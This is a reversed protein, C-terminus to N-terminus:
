HKMTIHLVNTAPEYKLIMPAKLMNCSKCTFTHQFGLCRAVHAFAAEKQQHGDDTTGLVKVVGAGVTRAM